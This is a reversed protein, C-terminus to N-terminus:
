PPWPSEVSVCLLLADQLLSKEWLRNCCRLKCKTSFTYFHFCHQAIGHSQIKLFDQPFCCLTDPMNILLSVCSFPIVFLWLFLLWSDAKMGFIVFSVENNSGSFVTEWWLKPAKEWTRIESPSQWPWRGTSLECTIRSSAALTVRNWLGTHIGTPPLVTRQAEVILQAM